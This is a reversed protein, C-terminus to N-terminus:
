KAELFETTDQQSLYSKVLIDLFYNSYDSYEMLIEVDKVILRCFDQKVSCVEM